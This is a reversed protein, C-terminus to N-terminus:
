GTSMRKLRSPPPAERPVRSAKMQSRKWPLNVAQAWVSSSAGPSTARNSWRSTWLDPKLGPGRWSEGALDMRFVCHQFPSHLRQAGIAVQAAALLPESTVIQRFVATERMADYVSALVARDRAAAASVMQDLDGVESGSAAAVLEALTLVAEDILGAPILGQQIRLVDGSRSEASDAM